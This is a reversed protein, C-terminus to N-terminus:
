FLISKRATIFRRVGHHDAHIQINEFLPVMGGNKAEKFSRLLRDIHATQGGGGTELLL